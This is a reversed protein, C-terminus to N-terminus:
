PRGSVVAGLEGGAVTVVLRDGVDADDPHRVVRADAARRVVAYGRELVRAPSLAEVQARRAGLDREGRELRHRAPSRRTTM